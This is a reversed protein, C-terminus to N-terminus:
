GRSRVKLGLDRVAILIKLYMANQTVPHHVHYDHYIGFFVLPLALWKKIKGTSSRDLRRHSTQQDQYKVVNLSKSNSQILQWLTEQDITWGRGGHEGSYNERGGHEDLIKKLIDLTSLNNGFHDLLLNWASPSAINYCIPLQGPPLVDRMIIFTLSNLSDSSLVKTEFSLSLPLMDIDSTMVLDYESERAEIIRSTQAVFASPLNTPKVIKLYKTLDRIEHPIVDAVILVKPIFRVGSTAPYTLWSSIFFRVCSLYKPNLDSASIVEMTKSKM